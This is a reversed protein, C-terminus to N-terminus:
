MAESGAKLLRQAGVSISQIADIQMDRLFGSFRTVANTTSSDKRSWDRSRGCRVAYRRGHDPHRQGLGVHLSCDTYFSKSNKM